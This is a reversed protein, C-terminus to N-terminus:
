TILNYFYIITSSLKWQFIDLSSLNRIFFSLSKCSNWSFDSLITIKSITKLFDFLFGFFQENQKFFLIEVFKSKNKERTTISLFSNSNKTGPDFYDSRTVNQLNNVFTKWRSFDFSIIDLFYSIGIMLTLLKNVSNFVM